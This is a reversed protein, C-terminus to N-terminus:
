FLMQDISSDPIEPSIISDIEEPRIKDIILVLIHAHPLERKQREVSYMWCHTPGFAYLKTIFNILSKLKQRFVHVKIDHRHM